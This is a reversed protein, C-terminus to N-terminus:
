GVPGQRSAAAETGVDPAEITETPAPTLSVGAVDAPTTEPSGEVGAMSAEAAAIAPAKMGLVRKPHEVFSRRWIEYAFLYIALYYCALELTRLPSQGYLTLYGTMADSAIFTVIAIRIIPPQSWGFTLLALLLSAYIVVPITLSGLTEQHQIGVMAAVVTAAIWIGVQLRNPRREMLFAICFVVHGAGFAAIGGVANTNILLDGVACLILGVCVLVDRALRTRSTAIVAILAILATTEVKFFMRIPNTVGYRYAVVESTAFCAVAVISVFILLCAKGRPPREPRREVDMREIRGGHRRAGAM